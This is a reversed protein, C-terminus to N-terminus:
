VDVGWYAKMAHHQNLFFLVTVVEGEESGVHSCRTEGM